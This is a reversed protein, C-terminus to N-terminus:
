EGITQIRLWTRGIRFLQDPSLAITELPHLRLDETPNDANEIFTGNKSNNDTMSWTNDQWQLIAHRRSIFTDTRLFIDDEPARGISLTWTENILNGDNNDTDYNLLLGDDVGSMIMLNLKM